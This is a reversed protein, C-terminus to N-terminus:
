NAPFPGSGYIYDAIQRPTLRVGRNLADSIEGSAAFMTENDRRRNKYIPSDRDNEITYITDNEQGNPLMTGPFFEMPVDQLDTLHSPRSSVQILLAGRRGLMVPPGNAIRLGLQKALHRVAPLRGSPFATILWHMNHWEAGYVDFLHNRSTNPSYWYWEIAAIFAAVGVREVHSVLYSRGDPRTVYAAIEDSQLVIV